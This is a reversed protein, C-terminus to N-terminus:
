FKFFMNQNSHLLDITFSDLRKPLLGDESIMTEAILSDVFSIVLTIMKPLKM